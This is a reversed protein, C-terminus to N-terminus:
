TPEITPQVSIIISAIESRHSLEKLAELNINEYAVYVVVWPSVKTYGFISEYNMSEFASEEIEDKCWFMFEITDRSNQWVRITENIGDVIDQDEKIKEFGDVSEIKFKDVAFGIKEEPTIQSSEPLVGTQVPADTTVADTQEPVSSSTQGATGDHVIDTSNTCSPLVMLSTSLVLAIIAKKM